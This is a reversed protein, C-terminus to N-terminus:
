LLTQPSPLNRSPGLSTQEFPVRSLPSGPGTLPGQKRCTSMGLLDGSCPLQCPEDVVVDAPLSPRPREGEHRAEGSGSPHGRM